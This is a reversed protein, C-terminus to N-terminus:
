TLRMAVPYGTALGFSGFGRMALHPAKKNDKSFTCGYHGIIATAM